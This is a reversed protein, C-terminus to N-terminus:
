ESLKALGFPIEITNNLGSYSKKVYNDKIVVFNSEPIIYFTYPAFSRRIGGSIELITRTENVENM